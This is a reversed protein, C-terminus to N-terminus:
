GYFYLSPQSELKHRRCGDQDGQCHGDWHRRLGNGGKVRRTRARTGKLARMGEVDVRGPCDYSVDTIRVIRPMTEDPGLIATEGDEVRRARACGGALPRPGVGCVRTPGNRSEENVKDTRGVAVNAGILAHNGDEVRRARARPWKGFTGKDDAGEDDVGLTRDRSIVSVRGEHTLTEQAILIAGEGREVRRARARSSALTRKAVCDAWTPLDSSVVKVPGIRAVTEQTIPVADNGGEINWAGACGRKLAGITPAKSRASGDHSIVEVRVIQTVTEQHIPIAGEGREIRRVRAGDRTQVITGVGKSDVRIARGRSPINVICVHIVAKHAILVAGDNLEVNRARARADEDEANSWAPRHRSIEPVRVVHNVAEHSVRIPDRHAQGLKASLLEQGIAAAAYAGYDEQIMALSLNPGASLGTSTYFRGNQVLPRKHNVKLM